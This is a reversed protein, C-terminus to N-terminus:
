SIWPKVGIPPVCGVTDPNFREGRSLKRQLTVNKLLYLFSNKIYATVESLSMNKTEEYLEIHIADLEDEIPNSMM